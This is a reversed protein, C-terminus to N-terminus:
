TRWLSCYPVFSCGLSNPSSVTYLSSQRLCWYHCAQSCDNSFFFVANSVYLLSCGLSALKMKLLCYKNSERQVLWRNINMLFPTLLQIHWCCPAGEFHETKWLCLHSKSDIRHNVKDDNNVSRSLANGLHTSKNVVSLWQGNAFNRPETCSTTLTLKHM